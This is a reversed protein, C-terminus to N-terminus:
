RLRWRPRALRRPALRRATTDLLLRAAPRSAWAARASAAARRLTATGRPCWSTSCWSRGARRRAGRLASARSPPRPTCSYPSRARAERPSCRSRRAARRPFRRSPSSSSMAQSSRPRSACATSASRHPPPTLRAAFSISHDTPAATTCRTPPAWAPADHARGDAARPACPEETLQLPFRCASPTKM